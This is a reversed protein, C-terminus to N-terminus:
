RVGEHHRCDLAQRVVIARSARDTGPGSLTGGFHAVDEILAPLGGVLGRM